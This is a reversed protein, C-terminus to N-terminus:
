THPKHCFSRSRATSSCEDYLRERYESIFLIRAFMQSPMEKTCLAFSDLCIPRPKTTMIKETFAMSCCGLFMIIRLISHMPGLQLRTCLGIGKLAMPVNKCGLIQSQQCSFDLACTSPMRLPKEPNSKMKSAHLPLCTHIPMLTPVRSSALRLCIEGANPWEMNAPTNTRAMQCGQKEPTELPTCPCRFFALDESLKGHRISNIPSSDRAIPVFLKM